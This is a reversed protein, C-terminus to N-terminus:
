EPLHFLYSIPSWRISKWVRFGLILSGKFLREAKKAPRFPKKEGQKEDTQRNFPRTIFIKLINLYV